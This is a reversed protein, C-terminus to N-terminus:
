ETTEGKYSSLVIEGCQNLHKIISLIKDQAEKVDRIQIPLMYEMDEKIMASARQSMNAFIKEKVKEAEGKLAKALEQSDVDRLVKQIAINDLKLIVESFNIPLFDDLSYQSNESLIKAFVWTEGKLELANIANCYTEAGSERDNNYGNQSNEFLSVAINDITKNHGYVTIVISKRDGMCDELLLIM